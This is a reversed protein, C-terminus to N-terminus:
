NSASCRRATLAEIEAAPVRGISGAAQPKKQLVAQRSTLAIDDKDLACAPSFRGPSPVARAKRATGRVRPASGFTIALVEVFEWQEGCM